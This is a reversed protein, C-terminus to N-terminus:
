QSAQKRWHPHSWDPPSLVTAKLDDQLKKDESLEAIRPKIYTEYIHRKTERDPHKPHTPYWELYRAEMELLEDLPKEDISTIGPNQGRRLRQCQIRLQEKADIQAM